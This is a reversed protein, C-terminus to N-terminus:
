PPSHGGDFAGSFDIRRCDAISVDAGVEDACNESVRGGLARFFALDAATACLLLTVRPTSDPYVFLTPAIALPMLTLFLVLLIFV